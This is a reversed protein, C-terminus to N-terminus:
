SWMVILNCHPGIKGYMFAQPGLLWASEIFRAYDLMDLTIYSLAM